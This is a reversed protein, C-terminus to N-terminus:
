SSEALCRTLKTVIREAVDVSMTLIVGPEASSIDDHIVISVGSDAFEEGRPSGHVADVLQPNDAFIDIWTREQNIMNTVICESGETQTSYLVWEGDNASLCNFGGVPLSTSEQMVKRMIALEEDDPESM